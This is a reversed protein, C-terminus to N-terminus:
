HAHSLEMLRNLDRIYRDILTYRARQLSLTVTPRKKGLRQAILKHSERARLYEFLTEAETATWSDIIDDVFATALSASVLFTEPEGHIVLRQKNMADLAHGSEIYVLGSTDDRISGAGIAVAIRADWREAAKPSAAILGAKLTIAAEMARTPEGMAVQFGDGRYASTEASYKEQLFRLLEHLRRQFGAPDSVGTSNVLDGTLVAIMKM